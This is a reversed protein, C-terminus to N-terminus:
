DYRAWRARGPKSLLTTDAPKDTQSTDTGHRKKNIALVTIVCTCYEYVFHSTNLLKVSLCRWWYWMFRLFGFVNHQLVLINRNPFYRDLLSFWNKHDNGQKKQEFDSYWYYHVFFNNSFLFIECSQIFYSPKIKHDEPQM